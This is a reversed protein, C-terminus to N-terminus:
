FPSASALSTSSTSKSSTFYAAFRNEKSFQTFRKNRVQNLIENYILACDSITANKQVDNRPTCRRLLRMILIINLLDNRQVGLSLIINHM